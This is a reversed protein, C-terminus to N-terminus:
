VIRQDGRQMADAVAQDVLAGQQVDRVPLGVRNVYCSVFFRTRDTRNVSGTHLVGCHTFVVSGAPATVLLERPHSETTDEAPIHTYDRHSGPVVRLPATDFTGDQDQLYTLYNCALPPTYARRTAVIKPTPAADLMSTGPRWLQTPAGESWVKSSDFGDRHWAAGPAHTDANAPYGTVECSDLQVFPGVVTEAFDLVTPNAVAEWMLQPSRELMNGFWLTEGTAGPVTVSEAQLRTQEARWKAMSEESYLAPWITYGDRKYAALRAALEAETESAAAMTASAPRAAESRDGLALGLSALFEIASLSPPAGVSSSVCVTRARRVRVSSM